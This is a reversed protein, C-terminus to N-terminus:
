VGRRYFVSCTRFHLSSHTSGTKMLGPHACNKKRPRTFDCRKEAELHRPATVERERRRTRERERQSATPVPGKQTLHQQTKRTFITRAQTHMRTQEKTNRSSVYVHSPIRQRRSLQKDCDVLTRNARDEDRFCCWASTSGKALRSGDYYRISRAVFM